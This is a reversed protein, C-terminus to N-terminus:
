FKSVAASMKAIMTKMSDIERKIYLHQAASGSAKLASVIEEMIMKKIRKEQAELDEVTVPDGRPRLGNEIAIQAAKTRSVKNKKALADLAEVQSAPLRASVQISEDAGIPSRRVGRTKRPPKIEITM